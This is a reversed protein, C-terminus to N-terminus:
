SCYAIGHLRLTYYPISDLNTYTCQIVNAHRRFWRVNCKESCIGTTLRCTVTIHKLPRNRCLVHGIWNAKRRKITNPYEEGEQSHTISRWKEYLWDLLDEGYKELVLNIFSEPTTSRSELTDLNWCWVFIKRLNLDLKSIFLTMEKWLLGPNLKGQIDPM